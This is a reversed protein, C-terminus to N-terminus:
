QVQVPSGGSDYAYVECECLRGDSDFAYVTAEKAIGGASYAVISGTLVNLLVYYTRSFTRVPLM